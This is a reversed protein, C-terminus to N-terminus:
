TTKQILHFCKILHRHPHKQFVDLLVPDYHPEFVPPVSRSRYQDGTSFLLYRAHMALTPTKRRCGNWFAQAPCQRAEKFGNRGVSLPHTKAALFPYRYPGPLQVHILLSAASRIPLAHWRRWAHVSPAASTM